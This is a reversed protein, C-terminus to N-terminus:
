ESIFIKLLAIILILVAAHALAEKHNHYQVKSVLLARLSDMDEKQNEDRSSSDNQSNM